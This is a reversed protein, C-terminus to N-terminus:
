SWRSKWLRAHIHPSRRPPIRYEVALFLDVPSGQQEQWSRWREFGDVLVHTPWRDPLTLTVYLGDRWGAPRATVAAVHAEVLADAEVKRFIAERSPWSLTSPEEGMAEDGQQM